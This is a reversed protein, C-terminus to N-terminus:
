PLLLKRQGEVWSQHEAVVVACNLLELADELHIRGVCRGQVEQAPHVRKCPVVFPRNGGCFLGDDESPLHDTSSRDRRGAPRASRGARLRKVPQRCESRRADLRGLSMATGFEFWGGIQLIWFLRASM